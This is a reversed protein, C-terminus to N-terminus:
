IIPFKDGFQRRWIKLSNKLQKEELARKSKNILDSLLEAFKTQQNNDLKKLLDDEPTAPNICSIERSFSSQISCATEYFSVDDRSNARFHKAVWVSLAIGSPMKNRRENAWAKFYKVLRVMQGNPDKKSEFWDCLQKPDSELWNAKTALFPHKDDKTKYYVPLDIDFEGKYIVRICKNRHEVGSVTQDKVAAAVYKQLTVAEITPKTLFYVGLDVDYSGDKKLVMTGMKYSGQIYFKPVAVKAVNKFYNVIRNELAQRSSVLKAKRGKTLSIADQFRLFNASADTKQTVKPEDSKFLERLILGGVAVGLLKLLTRQM